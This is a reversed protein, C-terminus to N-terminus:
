EKKAPSASAPGVAPAKTPAAAPTPHVGTFHLKTLAEAIEGLSKSVAASDAKLAAQELNRAGAELRDAAQKHEAARSGDVPKQGAWKRAVMQLRKSDTVVGDWRDEGFAVICQKFLLKSSREFEDVGPAPVSPEYAGRNVVETGRCGGLLLLSSILLRRGLGLGRDSRTAPSSTRWRTPLSTAPM